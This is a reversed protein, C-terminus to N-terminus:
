LNCYTFVTSNELLQNLKKNSFSFSTTGTDSFKASNVDLFNMVSSAKIGFNIGETVDKKLGSVAVAMLEGDKNVIPGGSNGPNIAADIQIENSNDGYGKLSSIIGQTFKLDDSLGKGFPYGAVIIKQLKEPRATSIKLYDKPKVKARLLALDLSQDKAILKADVEEERFIIKSKDNCEAVVHYNTVFYGKNNIFFGSGSAGTVTGGSGVIKKGTLLAYLKEVGSCEGISSVLYEYNDEEIIIHNSFTGSKLHITGKYSIHVGNDYTYNMKLKISNLAFEAEAGFAGEYKGGKEKAFYKSAYWDTRSYGDSTSEMIVFALKKNSLVGVLWEDFYSQQRGKEDTLIGKCSLSQEVLKPKSPESTGTGKDAIFKAIIKESSGKCGRINAITDGGVGGKTYTHIFKKKLYVAVYNKGLIGVASPSFYEAIIKNEDKSIIKYGIRGYKEKTLKLLNKQIDIWSAIQKADGSIIMSSNNPDVEFISSPKMKKLKEINKEYIRSLKKIVSDKTISYLVISNDNKNYIAQYDEHTTSWYDTDSWTGRLLSKANSFCKTLLIKEAFAANCWFLMVLVAVLVKKM